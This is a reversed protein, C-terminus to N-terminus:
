LLLALGLALLISAPVYLVAFTVTNQLALAVRPDDLLRQYNSLGLFRDRTFPIADYNTLSLYFSWAMPGVTLGVMGIIWPSLFFLAWLGERRRLGGTRMPAPPNTSTM